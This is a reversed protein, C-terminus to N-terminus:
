SGLKSFIYLKQKVVQGLRYNGHRTNKQKNKQQKKKKGKGKTEM